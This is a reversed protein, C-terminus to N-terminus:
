EEHRNRKKKDRRDPRGLWLRSHGAIRADVIRGDNFEVATKDRDSRSLLPV